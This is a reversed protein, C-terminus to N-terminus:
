TGKDIILPILSVVNYVQLASPLCKEIMEGLRFISNFYVVDRYNDMNSSDSSKTCMRWSLLFINNEPPVSFLLLLLILIISKKLHHRYKLRLLYANLIVHENRWLIIIHLIAINQLVSDVIGDIIFLTVQM